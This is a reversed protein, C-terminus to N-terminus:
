TFAMNSQLDLRSFWEPDGKREDMITEQLRNRVPAPSISLPAQTIDRSGM